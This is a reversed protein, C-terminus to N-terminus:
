SNEKGGNAIQKREHESKARKYIQYIGYDRWSMDDPSINFDEMWGAIFFAYDTLDNEPQWDFWLKVKCGACPDDGAAPTM